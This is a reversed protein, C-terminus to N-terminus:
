KNEYETMTLAADTTIKICDVIPSAADVTGAEGAPTEENNVTLRIINKGSKLTINGIYVEKFGGRPGVDTSMGKGSGLKINDFSLADDNVSVIYTEDTLEIDAYECSLVLKLVADSVDKDSTIEFQLYADCYFLGTVYKGSSAGANSQILNVGNASGSFNYGLKAGAETALGEAYDDTLGTLQTKEAEFVYEKQWKAYFNQDGTYKKMESFQEGGETYWGSFVYGNRTPTGPNSIRKGNQFANSAFLENAAGDYNNYFKVTSTNAADAWSAYITIAATVTEGEFDFPTELGSDKCWGTFVFGDKTPDTPKVVHGGKKVNQSQVASGGDVNFTVTYTTTKGDGGKEDGCACLALTAFVSCVALFISLLKSFKKM